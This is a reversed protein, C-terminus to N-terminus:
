GEAAPPVARLRALAGLSGLLTVDQEPAWEAVRRIVDRIWEQDVGSRSRGGDREAVLEARLRALRPAADDGHVSRMGSALARDVQGIAHDFAAAVAAPDPATGRGVVHEGM